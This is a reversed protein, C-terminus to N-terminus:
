SYSFSLQLINKGGEDRCYQQNTKPINGPDIPMLHVNTDVINLVRVIPGVNFPGYWSPCRNVKYLWNCNCLLEGTQQYTYPLGTFEVLYYGNSEPNDAVVAGINGEKISAANMAILHNLAQFNEKEDDEENNQNSSLIDVFHWRNEDGLIKSFYCYKVNAFRLQKEM